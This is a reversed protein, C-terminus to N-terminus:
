EEEGGIDFCNAIYELYENMDDCSMAKCLSLSLEDGGIAELLEDYLNWNREM